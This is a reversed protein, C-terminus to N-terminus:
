SLADVQQQLADLATELDDIQQQLDAISAAQASVLAELQEIITGLRVQSQGLPLGPKNLAPSSDALKDLALKDELSLISM